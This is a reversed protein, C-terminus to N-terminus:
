AKFKKQIEPESAVRIDNFIKRALGENLGKLIITGEKRLEYEGKNIQYIAFEPKTGFKPILQVDQKIDFSSKGNLFSFVHHAKVAFASSKSLMSAFNFLQTYVEKCNIDVNGNSHMIDYVWSLNVSQETNEM